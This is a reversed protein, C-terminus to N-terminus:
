TSSIQFEFLITPTQILGDINIITLTSGNYIISISISDEFSSTHPIWNDDVKKYLATKTMLVIEDEHNPYVFKNPNFITETLEVKFTQNIGNHSQYDFSFSSGLKSKIFLAMDEYKLTTYFPFHYVLLDSDIIIEFPIIVFREDNNQDKAILIHYDIMLYSAKQYKEPVEYYSEYIVEGYKGNDKYFYDIFTLGHKDLEPQIRERIVDISVDECIELSEDDFCTTTLQSYPSPELLENRPPGFIGAIFGIVIMRLLLFMSILFVLILLLRIIVQIITQKRNM